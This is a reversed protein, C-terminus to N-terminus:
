TSTAKWKVRTETSPSATRISITRSSPTTRSLVASTFPVAVLVLVLVLVVVLEVVVVMGPVTFVTSTRTAALASSASSAGDPITSRILVSRSSTSSAPNWVIPIRNGATATGRSAITM